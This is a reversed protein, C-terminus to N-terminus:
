RSRSAHGMAYCHRRRAEGERDLVPIHQQVGRKIRSQIPSADAAAVGLAAGAEEFNEDAREIWWGRNLLLRKPSERSRGICLTGQSKGTL